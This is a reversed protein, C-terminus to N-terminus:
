LSARGRDDSPDDDRHDVVLEDRVVHDPTEIAVPFADSVVEVNPELDIRTKLSNAIYCQEHAVHLLERVREESAGRVRVRPRLVIRTVHVPSVNEPMEGMADDQYSIVDVKARAAVALLSLLQCSSAAAVLLVEPNMLQPDGRFAPDASLPMRNGNATVEHSRDYSRYDTTSGTWSLAVVYSHTSM